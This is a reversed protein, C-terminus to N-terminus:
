MKRSIAHYSIWYLVVLGCISIAAATAIEAKGIIELIIVAVGMLIVYLSFAWSRAKNMIAINREDSEAIEQKRINEESSTLKIYQRLRVAGCVILAIGYASFFENEINMGFVVATTIAGIIIYAIAIYLRTKLKKRFEM